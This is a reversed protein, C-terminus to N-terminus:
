GHFVHVEDTSEVVFEVADHILFTSQIQMLVLIHVFFTPTFMAVM